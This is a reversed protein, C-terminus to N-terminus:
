YDDLEDKYLYWGGRGHCDPCEDYSHEDLHSGGLYISGTGGCTKCELYEGITESNSM